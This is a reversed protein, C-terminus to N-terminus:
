VRFSHRLGSSSQMTEVFRSLHSVRSYRLEVMTLGYLTFLSCAKYFDPHRQDLDVGKMELTMLNKLRPGLRVLASSVWSQDTNLTPHIWLTEVRPILSPTASFFDLFRDLDSRTRLILKDLLHLRARPYWSHCVLACNLLELRNDVYTRLLISRADVVVAVWDIVREFVELPLRPHNHSM